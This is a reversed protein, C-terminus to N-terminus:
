ALQTVVLTFKQAEPTLAVTLEGTITTGDPATATATITVSTGLDGAPVTAVVQDALLIAGASADETAPAFTVTPDSATFTPTLAYTSGTPDVYPVGNDLLAVGFQGTSGAAITGIAMTGEQTLKLTFRHPICLIITREIIRLMRDQAELIGRIEQLEFELQKWQHDWM